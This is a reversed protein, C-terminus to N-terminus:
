ASLTSGKGPSRGTSRKGSKKRDSSNSSSEDSSQTPHDAMEGGMVALVSDDNILIEDLDIEGEEIRSWIEKFQAKDISTRKLFKEVAPMMHTVNKRAKEFEGAYILFQATTPKRFKYEVGGLTIDIYKMVRKKASEAIVADTM